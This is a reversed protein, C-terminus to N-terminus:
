RGHPPDDREPRCCKNTEGAGDFLQMSKARGDPHIITFLNMQAAEVASYGLARSWAGNVYQFRGHADVSQILDTSNEFLDRYREESEHLALSQREAARWGRRVIFVNALYALALAGSFYALVVWRFEAAARRLADLSYPNDDQVMGSAMAQRHGEFLRDQRDLRQTFLVLFGATLAATIAFSFLAFYLWHTRWGRLETLPGLKCTEPSGASLRRRGAPQGSGSSGPM